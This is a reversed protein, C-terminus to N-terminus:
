PYGGPPEPYNECYSYDWGWQTGAYKKREEVYPHEGYVVPTCRDLRTESFRTGMIWTPSRNTDLLATYMGGGDEPAGEVFVTALIIKRAASIMIPSFNTMHGAVTPLAVWGAYPSGLRLGVINTPGGTISVNPHYEMSEEWYMYLNEDPNALVCFPNVFMNYTYPLNFANSGAPYDYPADISNVVIYQTAANFFYRVIVLEGYPTPFVINKISTNAAPLTTPAGAFEDATIKNHDTSNPGSGSSWYSKFSDLEILSDSATYGYYWLVSDVYKEGAPLSLVDLDLFLIDMGDRIISTTGKAGDIFYVLRIVKRGFYTNFFVFSYAYGVEARLWDAANYFLPAFNDLINYQYYAYFPNPKNTAYQFYLESTVDDWNVYEDTFSPGLTFAGLSNFGSIYGNSNSETYTGEVNYTKFSYAAPFTGRFSHTYRGHGAPYWDAMPKWYSPNSELTGFVFDSGTCLLFMNGPWGSEVIDPAVLLAGTGTSNTDKLSEVKPLKEKGYGYQDACYLKIEDEAKAFVIIGPPAKIVALDILAKLIIQYGNIIYVKGPVGIEKLQALKQKAFGYWRKCRLSNIKAKIPM